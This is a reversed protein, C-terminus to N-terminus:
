QMLVAGIGVDSADTCLIMPKDFQPLRLVPHESIKSKLVLYADDASKSWKLVNPEGKRTIDTLSKAREAFRHIFKRYFGVAGLFSRLDKKSKPKSVELIKCVKEGQPKVVGKGVVQGLLKIENFGVECKTPRGTLSHQRLRELVRKVADLHGEWDPTHITLDDIYSEVNPLGQLARKGDQLISRWFEVIWVAYGPITARLGMETQFATLYRHEKKIPIQWYGKSLDIKTFYVSAGLKEIVMEQNPMPEADTLSVMNIRGFDICYRDSGDQKRVIVSPSAYDSTSPETIGMRDMKIVEEKM